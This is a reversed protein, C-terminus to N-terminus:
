EAQQKVVADGVDAAGEEPLLNRQALVFLLVFGPLVVLVALVVTVVLAQL